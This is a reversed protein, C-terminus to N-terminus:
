AIADGLLIPEGDSALKLLPTMCSQYDPIPM